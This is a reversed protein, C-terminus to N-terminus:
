SRFVRRWALQGLRSLALGSYPLLMAYMPYVGRYGYSFVGVVALVAFHSVAIVAPIFSQPDARLTSLTFVLIIGAAGSVWILMMFTVDRPPTTSRAGGGPSNARLGLMFVAKQALGGVFSRPAQVAYELASRTYSTLGLRRYIPRTTSRSIDVGRPPENSIFLNIGGSTPTLMWQGSVVGNRLVVLGMMGGLCAVFIILPSTVSTRRGVKLSIAMLLLILPLAALLTTRTLAAIGGLIGTWAGRSRSPRDAFRVLALLWLAVVPVFLTEALLSGQDPPGGLSIVVRVWYAALVLTVWGAVRGFLRVTVRYLAWAASALLLQQAVYIGSFDEGVLFHVAALFYPYLPQYYFASGHGIPQGLTMLPGHLVIDRAYTEYTLWDDGGSLMIPLGVLHRRLARVFVYAAVTITLLALASRGRSPPESRSPPNVVLRTLMRGVNWAIWGGLTAILLGDLGSSVARVIWDAICRAGSHPETYVAEADFPYDRGHDITGAALGRLAERASPARYRVDLRHWGPGLALEIEDREIRASLALLRQGDVDLIARANTEGDGPGTTGPTSLYFRTVGAYPVRLWGQWEVSFPLRSRDPDRPLYYNFRASDNFFYVPFPRAPQRFELRDDIRTAALRLFDLSREQPPRWADNAYYRGVFGHDVPLWLGIALKAGLLAIAWRTLPAHRTFAHSWWIAILLATGLLGIPRGHLLGWGSVPVVVYASWLITEWFSHAASGRARSDV